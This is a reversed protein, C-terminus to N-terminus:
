LARGCKRRSQTSVKEDKAVQQHGAWCFIVLCHRSRNRPHRDNTYPRMPLLGHSSVRSEYLQVMPLTGPPRHRRRLVQLSPNPRPQRMKKPNPPLCPRTLEMADTARRLMILSIHQAFNPNSVINLKPFFMLHAGQNLGIGLELM